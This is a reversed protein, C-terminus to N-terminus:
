LAKPLRQWTALIASSRTRQQAIFYTTSIDDNAGRLYRSPEYIKWREESFSMVRTRCRVGSERLSLRCDRESEEVM